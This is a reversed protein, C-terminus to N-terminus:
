AGESRTVIVTGLPSYLCLMEQDRSYRSAGLSYFPFGVLRGWELILLDFGVAREVGRLM